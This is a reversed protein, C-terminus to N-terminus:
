VEKNTIRQWLGRTYMKQLKTRLIDNEQKEKDLSAKMDEFDKRLQKLANIAEELKQEALAKLGVAEGAQAIYEHKAKRYALYEEKLERYKERWGNSEECAMHLAEYNEQLKKELERVQTLTARQRKQGKEM